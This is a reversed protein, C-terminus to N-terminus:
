PYARALATTQSKPTQLSSVHLTHVCISYSKPGLIQWGLIAGKKEHCMELFQGYFNCFPETQASFLVAFVSFAASDLKWMSILQFYQKMLKKSCFVRCPAWFCTFKEPFHSMKGFNRLKQVGTLHTWTWFSWFDGKETTKSTFIPNLPM